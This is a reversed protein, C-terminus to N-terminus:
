GVVTHPLSEARLLLVLPPQHGQVGGVRGKQCSLVAVEGSLVHFSVCGDEVLSLGDNRRREPSHSRESRRFPISSQPCRFPWESPRFPGPVIDM